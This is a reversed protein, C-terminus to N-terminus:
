NCRAIGSIATSLYVTFQNVDTHIISGEFVVSGSNFLEVSPMFGLNHNVVWTDSAASQAHVYSSSSPGQPGQIGQPGVAGPAGAAGPNGTDGKLGQPGTAGQPGAVGPDGKDGKPGTPGVPGAGGGSGPRNDIIM